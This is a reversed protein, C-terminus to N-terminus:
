EKVEDYNDNETAYVKIPYIYEPERHEIASMILEMGNYLGQMYVDKINQRQIYLLNNLQELQKEIEREAIDRAIELGTLYSADESDIVPTMDEFNKIENEIKEIIERM